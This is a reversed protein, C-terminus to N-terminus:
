SVLTFLFVLCRCRESNSKAEDTENTLREELAGVQRERLHKEQELATEHHQRQAETAAKFAEQQTALAVQHRNREAELEAGFRAREERREVEHAKRESEVAKRNDELLVKVEQQHQRTLQAQSAEFSKQADRMVGADVQTQKVVMGLSKENASLVQSMFGAPDISYSAGTEGSGPRVSVV